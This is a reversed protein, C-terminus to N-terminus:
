PFTMAIKLFHGAAQDDNCAIGAKRDPLTSSYREVSFMHLLPFSKQCATKM